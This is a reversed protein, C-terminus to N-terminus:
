FTFIHFKIDDLATNDCDCSDPSGLIYDGGGIEGIGVDDTNWAFDQAIGIGTHPFGIDTFLFPDEDIDLGTHGSDLVGDGVRSEQLLEIGQNLRIILCADDTMVERVDFIEDPFGVPGPVVGVDSIGFTVLFIEEVLLTFDDGDGVGLLHFTAGPFRVVDSEHDHSILFLGIPNHELFISQNIWQIEKKSVEM